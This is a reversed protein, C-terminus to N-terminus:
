EETVTNITPRQNTRRRRHQQQATPRVHGKTCWTWLSSHSNTTEDHGRLDRGLGQMDNRVSQKITPTLTRATKGRSSRRCPVHLSPLSVFTLIQISQDQEISFRRRWWTPWSRSPHRRLTCGRTLETRQQTRKAIGYAWHRHTDAFGPPYGNFYSYHQIKKLEIDLLSYTSCVPLARQIMSVVNAKKYSFPVYSNWNTMLGM